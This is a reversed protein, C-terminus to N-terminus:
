FFFFIYKNYYSKDKFYPEIKKIETLKINFIIFIVLLLLFCFIIFKTKNYFIYSITFRM